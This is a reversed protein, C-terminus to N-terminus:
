LQIIYFVNAKVYSKITCCVMKIKREKENM